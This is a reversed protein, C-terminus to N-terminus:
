LLMIKSLKMFRFVSKNNRGSDSKHGELDIGMADTEIVSQGGGDM